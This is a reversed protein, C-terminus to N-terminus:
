NEAEGEQGGTGCLQDDDNPDPAGIKDRVWWQPIAVKDALKDIADSMAELAIGADTEFVFRGARIRKGAYNFDYFPKVVGRTMVGQIGTARATNM